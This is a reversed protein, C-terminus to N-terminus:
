LGVPVVGGLDGVGLTENLFVRSEKALLDTDNFSTTSELCIDLAMSSADETRQSALPDVPRSRDLERQKNVDLIVAAVTVYALEAGPYGNEFPLQHYSGDVALVLDPLWGSPKVDTVLPSPGTPADAASRKRCRGVVDRVRESNAIRALPKYGAFEGEYPM